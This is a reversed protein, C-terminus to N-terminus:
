NKITGIKFSALEQEPRRQGGHQGDFEDTADTGCMGLIAGQGGPHKAIWATVDYVGGRVITWCSQSDSHTAVESITYTKTVTSTATATGAATQTNMPQRMGQQQNATVGPSILTIGIILVGVVILFMVISKISYQFIM